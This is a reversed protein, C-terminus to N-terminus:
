EEMLVPKLGKIAKETGECAKATRETNKEIGSGDGLGLAGSSASSGFAGQVPGTGEVMEKAARAVEEAKAAEPRKLDRAQATLQDLRAQLAPDVKGAEEMQRRKDEELERIERNQQAVERGLVSRDKLKNVHGLAGIDGFPNLENSAEIVKNIGDILLNLGDITAQIVEFMVSGIAAATLRAAHEIALWLGFFFFKFGIWIKELLGVGEQFAMELGIMAIEGALKLDGGALADRIGGFTQGFILGLREVSESYTDFDSAIILAAIGALGAVFLGLPSLLAGIVAAIAGLGTLVGGLVVGLATFAAGFAAVALGGAILGGAVMGIIKFLGANDSIFQRIQQGYSSILSVFHEVAAADPLLADGVKRGISKIITWIRSIADGIRDAKEAEATTIIAGDAAAQAKLKALGAAGEKLFPLMKRGSKGFAETAAAAQETPNEIAAIADAVAYVQTELDADKLASLDIGAVKEGAAIQKQLKALSGEMDEASTGALDAAYSLGTVTETSTNLRAAMDTAASGAEVFHNILGVLPAAVAAGIGAGALGIASLKKGFAQFQKPVTNLWARLGKDKAFIEVFAAGTRIAGSKGSGGGGAAM